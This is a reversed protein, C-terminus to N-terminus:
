PQRHGHPMRISRLVPLFDSGMKRHGGGSAGSQHALGRLLHNGPQVPRRQHRPSFGSPLVADGAGAHHHHHPAARGHRLVRGPQFGAYCLLRGREAAGPHFVGGGRPVPPHRDIGAAPGSIGMGDDPDPDHLRHDSPHEDGGQARRHHRRHFQPLGPRRTRGGGRGPTAPPLRGGPRSLGRRLPLARLGAPAIGAPTGKPARCPRRICRPRVGPSRDRGGATCLRPRGPLGTSAAANGRLGGTAHGCYQVAGRTPQGSLVAVRSGQGLGRHELAQVMQSTSERVERYSAVKDGLFLCPEDHYRNLGEVLLHPLLPPTYLPNNSM